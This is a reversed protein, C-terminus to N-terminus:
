DSLKEIHDIVLVPQPLKREELKLGLQKEMAEFVTLGGQEILAKGVWTLKFDYKDQLRTSDVVVRDIYAGAMEPLLAALDAMTINACIFGGQNVPQGKAAPDDSQPAIRRCNREGTGAAKQLKLGGKAVVLSYVDTPKQEQHHVIKFERELFV